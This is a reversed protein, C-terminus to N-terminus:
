IQVQKCQCNLMSILAGYIHYPTTAPYFDSIPELNEDLTEHWLGNEANLYHNSLVPMLRDIIEGAEEKFGEKERMIYAARLVEFSTWIRKSSDLIKGNRNQVNFVGGKEWDMGHDYIFRFLSAQAHSIRDDTNGSLRKYESLLWIWEGHHGAEIKHGEQAHTNLDNDFFEGLIQTEQDFFKDFFLEIIETAVDLYKKSKFIEFAVLCSELLHMHPNQRRIRKLPKLNEDLAEAYGKDLKFTEKIFKLTIDAYDQAQSNQTVKCYQSCALIIFAHAYLDYHTDAAKNNKDLSFISGSTSPNFYHTKIFDFTENIKNLYNSNEPNNELALSYVYLMRCQSLLRRPMSIPKGDQSLREQFGSNPSSFLQLWQPLYQNEVKELLSQIEAPKDM